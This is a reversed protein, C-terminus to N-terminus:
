QLINLNLKRSRNRCQYFFFFDSINRKPFFYSTARESIDHDTKPVFLKWKCYSENWILLSVLRKPLPNDYKMEFITPKMALWFRIMDYIFVKREWFPNNREWFPVNWSKKRAISSKYRLLLIIQDKIYIFTIIEKSKFKFSHNFEM